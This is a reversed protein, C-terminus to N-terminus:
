AQEVAAPIRPPTPRLVLHGRPTGYDFDPWATKLKRLERLVKKRFNDVTVRDTQAPNAGFQRYLQPWTLRLPRDLTFLRYTLWLYLDLGLSSRKLAKLVNMDLPVPCAIIEAFFDEGLRITSEWLVPDDPRRPNWWFEGRDAIRSALFRKSDQDEHILEVQCSFLRDMQNQLRTRSGTPGGATPNLGLKRMFESLSRGLVLTRSQTRVAETCVWALLLRPLTGYPLKADGGAILYLKFPGNIRRYQARDGPNTRPLTCLALLRMMFGTDPEAERVAVLADVQDNRTWHHLAQPTLEVPTPDGVHQRFEEIGQAVERKRERRATLRAHEDSKAVIVAEGEGVPRRDGPQRAVAAGLREVLAM